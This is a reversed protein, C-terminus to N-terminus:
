SFSRQMDEPAIDKVHQAFSWQHGEL